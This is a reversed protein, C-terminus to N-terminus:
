REMTPAMTALDKVRAALERLAEPLRGTDFLWALRFGLSGRTPKTLGDVDDAPMMSKTAFDLCLRFMAGATNYCKVAMCTGGEKFAAEIDAPLHEPPQEAKEDKLSLYGQVRFYDNLSRPIGALGVRRVDVQSADTTQALIIISDYHCKRCICFAEYWTQWGYEIRLFNEGALDLTILGAGCRPSDAVLEAIMKGKDQQTVSECM